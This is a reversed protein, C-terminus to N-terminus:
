WKDGPMPACRGNAHLRVTSETDRWYEDGELIASGCAECFGLVGLGADVESPPDTVEVVNLVVDQQHNSKVLDVADRASAAVVQREVECTVNFTAM